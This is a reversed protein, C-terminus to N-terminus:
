LARFKSFYHLLPHSYFHNFVIQYIFGFVLVKKRSKSTNHRRTTWLYLHSRPWLIYYKEWFFYQHLTVRKEIYIYKCKAMAVLRLKKTNKRFEKSHIILKSQESSYESTFYKQTPIQFQYSYTGIGDWTKFYKLVLGLYTLIYYALNQICNKESWIYELVVWIQEPILPIKEKCSLLLTFFDKITLMFFVWVFQLIYEICM